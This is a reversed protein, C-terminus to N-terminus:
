KRNGKRKRPRKRIRPKDDATEKRNMNERLWGKLESRCLIETMFNGLSNVVTEEDRDKLQYQYYAVHMCEHLVVNVADAGGKDIMEKDLYIRYPPNPIFTGQSEGVEHMIEHPACILEVSFPGISIHKPLKKNQAM